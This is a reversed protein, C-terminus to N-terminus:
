KYTYLLHFTLVTQPVICVILDFLLMLWIIAINFSKLVDDHEKYEHKKSTAYYVAM